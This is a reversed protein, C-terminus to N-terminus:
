DTAVVAASEEKSLKITLTSADSSAFAFNKGGVRFTPEGGWM